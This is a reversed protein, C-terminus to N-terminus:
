CAPKRPPARDRYHKACSHLLHAEGVIGRAPQRQRRRGAARVARARRALVSLCNRRSVDCWRPLRHAEVRLVQKHQTALALGLWAQLVPLSRPLQAAPFFVQAGAVKLTSLSTLTQAGSESCVRTDASMLENPASTAPM